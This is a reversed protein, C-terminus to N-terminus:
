IHTQILRHHRSAVIAKHDTKMTPRVPKVRCYRVNQVYIRDLMGKNSPGTIFNGLSKLGTSNIIQEDKLDNFDGTLVIRAAPHNRHIRQIIKRASSPPFTKHIGHM